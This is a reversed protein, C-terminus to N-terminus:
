IVYTETNTHTGEPDELQCLGFKLFQPHVYMKRSLSFSCQLEMRLERMLKCLTTGTCTLSLIVVRRLGRWFPCTVMMPAWSWLRSEPTLTRSDKQVTREETGRCSLSSRMPCEFARTPFSWRSQCPRTPFWPIPLQLALPKSSRLSHASHLRQLVVVM